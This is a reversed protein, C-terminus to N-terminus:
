SHDRGGFERGLEPFSLNTHVRALYMAIHRPRTLTRTRKNGTIDAPRLNHFRAVQEIIAFVTIDKPTVTFQAAMRKRAFELTIPQDYFQHLAALRKLLGELERINGAVVNAIAEALDTPIRIGLADAKQWLIALLTERDPAQMDAL